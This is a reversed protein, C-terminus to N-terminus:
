QISDMGTVELYFDVLPKLQGAVTDRTDADWDEVPADEVWDHIIERVVGIRNSLKVAPAVAISKHQAFSEPIVLLGAAQFDLQWVHRADNISTAPQEMRNAVSVFAKANQFSMPLLSQNAQFFDFTFQDGSWEKLLLGVARAENTYGIMDEGLVKGRSVFSEFREKIETAFGKQLQANM